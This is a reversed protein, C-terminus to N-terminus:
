RKFLSYIKLATYYHTTFLKIIYPIYTVIPNYFLCVAYGFGTCYDPSIYQPFEGIKMIKDIAMIRLIHHTGDDGLAVQMKILPIASILATIIIILYHIKKNCKIAQVIKKM